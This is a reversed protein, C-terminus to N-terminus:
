HYPQILREYKKLVLRAEEPNDPFIRGDRLAEESAEIINDVNNVNKAHIKLWSSLEDWHKLKGEIYAREIIDM